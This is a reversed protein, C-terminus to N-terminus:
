TFFTFVITVINFEIVARLTMLVRNMQVWAEFIWIAKVIISEFSYSYELKITQSHQDFRYM